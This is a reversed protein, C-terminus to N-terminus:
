PFGLISVYLIMFVRKMKSTPQSSSDCIPNQYYGANIQYYLGKNTNDRTILWCPNQVTSVYVLVQLVLDPCAM